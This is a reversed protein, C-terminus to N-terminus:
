RFAVPSYLLFEKQKQSLNDTKLFCNKISSVDNLETHNLGILRQKDARILQM